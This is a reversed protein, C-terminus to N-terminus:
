RRRLRSPRPPLSLCSALEEATAPITQLDVERGAADRLMFRVGAIHKEAYASWQHPDEKRQIALVIGAAM